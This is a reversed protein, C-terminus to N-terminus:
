RGMTFAPSPTGVQRSRDAQQEATFESASGPDPAFLPPLYAVVLTAFLAVTAGHVFGPLGGREAPTGVVFGALAASAAPLVWVAIVAHVSGADRPGTDFLTILLLPLGFLVSPLLATLGYWLAALCRPRQALRTIMARAQRIPRRRRPGSPASGM